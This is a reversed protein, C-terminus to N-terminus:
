SKFLKTMKLASWKPNRFLDMYDNAKDATKIANRPTGGRNQWLECDILNPSKSENVRSLVGLSVRPGLGNWARDVRFM